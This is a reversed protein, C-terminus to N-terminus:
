ESEEVVQRLYGGRVAYGELDGDSARDCLGALLACGSWVSHRSNPMMVQVTNTRFHEQVESRIREDLWQLRGFPGCLRIGGCLGKRRVNRDTNNIAATVADGLAPVEETAPLGFLYPAFLGEAALCTESHVTVRGTGGEFSEAPRFRFAPRRPADEEDECESRPGQWPDHMQWIDEPDGSGVPHGLSRLRSPLAKLRATLRHLLADDAAAPASASSTASTASSATSDNAQQLARELEAASPAVYCREFLTDLTSASLFPAATSQTASGATTGADTNAAAGAVTGEEAATAATTSGPGAGPGPGAGARERLLTELRRQVSAGGYPLFQASVQRLQDYLAVVTREADLYVLIVHATASSTICVCSLPDCLTLLPVQLEIQLLNLLRTQEAQTHEPSSSVWSTCLLKAAAPCAKVRRYAEDLLLRLDTWSALSGDRNFLARPNGEAAHYEHFPLGISDSHDTANRRGIYPHLVASPSEDSDLGVCLQSQEISIVVTPCNEPDFPPLSKAPASHTPQPTEAM